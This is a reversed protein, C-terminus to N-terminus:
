QDVPSGAPAALWRRVEERLREIATEGLEAGAPAMEIGLIRIGARCLGLAEVLALAEALGIGHSSVSGVEVPLEEPSFAMVTGPPGQGRMADLLLLRDGATLPHLFLDSPQGLRDVTVDRRAALETSLREAALWGLRDPGRPSGLGFM